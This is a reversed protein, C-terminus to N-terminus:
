ICITRSSRLLGDFAHEHFSNSTKEVFALQTGSSDVFSHLVNHTNLM